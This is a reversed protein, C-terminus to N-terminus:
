GENSRNLLETTIQKQFNQLLHTPLKQLIARDLQETIKHQITNRFDEVLIDSHILHLDKTCIAKLELESFDHTCNLIGQHEKFKGIAKLEEKLEQTTMYAWGTDCVDRLAIRPDLENTYGIQKSTSNTIFFSVGVQPLKFRFTYGLQELLHQNTETAKFYYNKM